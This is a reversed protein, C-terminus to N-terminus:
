SAPPQPTGGRTRHMPKWLGPRAATPMSPRPHKPRSTRYYLCHLEILVAPHVDEIDHFHRLRFRSWALHWDGDFGPESPAPHLLASGSGSRTMRILLSRISTEPQMRGM